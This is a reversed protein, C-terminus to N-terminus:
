VWWKIPELFVGSYLKQFDLFISNQTGTRDVVFLLYYAIPCALEESGWDTKLLNDNLKDKKGRHKKNHLNNRSNWQRVCYGKAM